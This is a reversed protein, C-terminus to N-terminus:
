RGGGVRVPRPQLGESRAPGRRLGVGLLSLGVGWGVAAVLLGFRWPAGTAIPHQALYEAEGHFQQLQWTRFVDLWHLVAGLGAAFLGLACLGTSLRVLRRARHPAKVAWVIGVGSGVLVLAAVLWPLLRGVANVFSMWALSM